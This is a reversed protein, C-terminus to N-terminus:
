TPPTTRPPLRLAGDAEGGGTAPDVTRVGSLGLARVRDASGVAFRVAADGAVYRLRDAPYGPDLPLYAAGARLVALIAIPVDVGRDLLLAVIDGRCVGAATLRGALRASAAHVERYTFVRDGDVLCPADPRAAAVRDFVEVLSEAGALFNSM